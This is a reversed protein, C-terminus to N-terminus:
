SSATVSREVSRSPRSDVLLAGLFLTVGLLALPRWTTGASDLYPTAWLLAPVGWLLSLRRQRVALPAFLLVLYHIWLLPTALLATVVAVVFAREDGNEQRAVYVTLLCGGVGVIALAVTGVAIPLGLSIALGQLSYSKWEQADDLARLLTPYSSFGAFGIGAWPVVTLVVAAIASGAAAKYRRTAALWVVLPWLILKAVFTAGVVLAARGVSDRYRWSAAVGLFLFPGIAGITLALFLPPSLLAVGYCRWDRVGLLRLGLAVSGCGALLFLVWGLVRPVVAFPILVYADVPPYVFKNNLALLAPVAPPYPSRGHMVAIAALRFTDFDEGVKGTVAWYGVLALVILPAEVFLATQVSRRRVLLSLRGADVATVSVLNAVGDAREERRGGPMVANTNDISM